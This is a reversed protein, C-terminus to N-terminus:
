FSNMIYKSLYQKLIEYRSFTKFGSNQGIFDDEQNMGIVPNANSTKVFNLSNRRNNNDNMSTYKSLRKTRSLSQHVTDGTQVVLDLVDSVRRSNSPSFAVSEFFYSPANNEQGQAMMMRMMDDDDHELFGGGICENKLHFDIHAKRCKGSCYAASRGDCRSCSKFPKFKTEENECTPNSCTRPPQNMFKEENNVFNVNQSTITTQEEGGSNSTTEERSKRIVASSSSSTFDEREMFISDKNKFGIANQSTSRLFLVRMLHNLAYSIGPYVYSFQSKSKPSYKKYLCVILRKFLKHHRYYLRMKSDNRLLENLTIIAFALSHNCNNKEAYIIHNRGYLGSTAVTSGVSASSSNSSSNNSSSSGNNNSRPGGPPKSERYANIAKLLIIMCYNVLRVRANESWMASYDRDGLIVTLSQMAISEFKIFFQIYDAQTTYLPTQFIDILYDIYQMDVLKRYCM